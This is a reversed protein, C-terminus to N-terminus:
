RRMAIGPPRWHKVRIHAPTQEFRARTEFQEALWQFWELYGPWEYEIRTQLVNAKLRTWSGLVLGGVLDEVIDFPIVGRYVLVGLMEFRFGLVVAADEHEFSEAALRTAPKGASPYFVNRYARGMADDQLSRVLEIATWDQRQARFQRLQGAAVVASVVIVLGTFVTGLATVAEWSVRRKEGVAAAYGARVITRGRRVFEAGVLCTRKQSLRTPYVM